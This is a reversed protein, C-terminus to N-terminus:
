KIEKSKVLSELFNHVTEAAIQPTTGLKNHWGWAELIRSLNRKFEMTKIDIVYGTKTNVTSTLPKEGKANNNGGCNPCMTEITENGCYPCNM